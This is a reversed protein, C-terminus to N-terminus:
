LCAYALIDRIYLCIEMLTMPNLRQQSRERGSHWISGGEIAQRHCELPNLLFEPDEAVLEFVNIM